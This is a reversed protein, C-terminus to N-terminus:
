LQGRFFAWVGDITAISVVAHASVCRVKVGVAM